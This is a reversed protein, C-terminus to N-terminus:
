SACYWKTINKYKSM